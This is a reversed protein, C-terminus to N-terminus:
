FTTDSRSAHTEGDMFTRTARKARLASNPQAKTGGNTAPSAFRVSNAHVYHRAGLMCVRRRRALNMGRRPWTLSVQCHSQLPQSMISDDNRCSGEWMGRCM